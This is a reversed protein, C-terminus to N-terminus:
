TYCAGNNCGKPCKYNTSAVGTSTCHYEFVYGKFPGDSQRCYDTYTGKTGDTKVTNVIGKVTYNEGGDTDTCGPYVTVENKKCSNYDLMCTNSCKITGDDLGVDKCSATSPVSGDCQEGSEKVDNGCIPKIVAGNSTKGSDADPLSPTSNKIPDSDTCGILLVTFLMTIGIIASLYIKVM